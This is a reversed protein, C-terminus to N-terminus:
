LSPPLYQCVRLDVSNVALPKPLTVHALVADLIEETLLM